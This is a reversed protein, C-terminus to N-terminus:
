RGMVLARSKILKQIFIKLTYKLFLFHGKKAFVVIQPTMSLHFVRLFSFMLLM